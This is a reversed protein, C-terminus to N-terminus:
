EHCNLAEGGNVGSCKWSSGKGCEGQIEYPVGERCLFATLSCDDVDGCAGDVIRLAMCMEASGDCKWQWRDEVGDPGKALVPMDLVAGVCLTDKALEEVVRYRGTIARGCPSSLINSRDSYCHSDSGGGSGKCDWSLRDGILKRNMVLGDSCFGSEPEKEWKQNHASGCVANIVIPQVYIEDITMVTAASAQVSNAVSKNVAKISVGIFIMGICVFVLLVMNDLRSNFQEM